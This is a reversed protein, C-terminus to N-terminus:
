SAHSAAAPKGLVRLLVVLAAIGIPLTLMPSIGYGAPLYGVVMAVLGCTAAYPIQTRVHDVHDSASAMSSMITTDSIPSCHDGFVAGGLVASLTAYRISTALDADFGTGEGTLAFAMPGAIPFVIAMTSYSSGTAFAIVACALFTVTPLLQPPPHVQSLVWQGTQLHDKCIIGIAWALILIMIAMLMSKAGAVWADIAEGFSLSRTILSTAVAVIGAGFAAWVLVAYADAASIVERISPDDGVVNMRGSVYLGIFVFLIVSVVPIVAAIWSGKGDSKSEMETLGQDMLPKAGPRLVDGALARREAALMPGYDRQSVAIALVFALTFFSYFSYPLISLFLDYGNGFLDDLLGTQYGIWTSVIAITAVPAATSDVMYALKERSIKLRDTLPRLTTGVLLCNAYDDFFVILGSAWSTVMGSRRSKARKAIVDVLARTAGSRSLVGVMGGLASTFFVTSAHGHDVLQGPLYTDFSRLLATFPNFGHIFLAGLWIGALLAVLAQRFILAIVIAFLPPLISLFGPIRRLEPTFSGSVGDRSVMVYDNTVQVDEVTARGNEFRPTETVPVLEDGVTRAVGEIAATGCFAESRQGDPGVATVVLDIPLNGVQYDRSAAIEFREVSESPACALLAVIVLVNM